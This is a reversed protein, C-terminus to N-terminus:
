QGDRNEEIMSNETEALCTKRLYQIKCMMWASATDFFNKQSDYNTPAAIVVFDANCRPLRYALM